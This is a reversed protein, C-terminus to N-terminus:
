GPSNRMTPLKTLPRHPLGSLRPKRSQQPKSNRLASKFAEVSGIDPKPAGSRLEVGMGSRILAATPWFRETKILGDILPPGVILVDFPEHDNIRKVFAPGFGSIM